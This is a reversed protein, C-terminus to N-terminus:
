IRVEGSEGAHMVLRNKGAHKARYLAQDALRVVDKFEEAHGPWCAGGMSVGVCAKSACVEIPLNVAEIVRAAVARVAQDRGSAAAEFVLMFEDGGLRVAMDEGRLCQGLRASVEKLLADGAEHGLTDNVAKFGDLDLCLVALSAGARRARALAAELNQELGLRNLLGTLPDRTALTEMRGRATESRTLNDVMERLSSSLIEIDKVGKFAPIDAQEGRALRTAAATIARLPRAVHSAALLGVLAFLAACAAGALLIEGLLKRIPRYATDLPQRAVVTWGLGDRTEQGPGRGHALAAGTLYELGDPWREVTWAPRGKRARAVADLALTEGMLGDGGLLVSDGRSVVFLGVDHRGELPSLVSQQVERAWAWSLHTALVGALSGDANLIPASVDVFKVPEGSPNPILKALMVAEHVDGLFLGKAGEQFVPRAAISVGELLGGASAKVKGSADAVGIFAYAPIARQLEEIVARVAGPDDQALLPGLRALVKVEGARAWMDRDLKGAMQGAMEALAGGIEARVQRAARWGIFAGLITVLALVALAFALTFRTRISTSPINM